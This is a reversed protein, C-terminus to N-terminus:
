SLLIYRDCVATAATDHYLIIIHDVISDTQPIIMIKRIVIFILPKEYFFFFTYVTWVYSFGCTNDGDESSVFM